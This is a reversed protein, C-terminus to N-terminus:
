SDSRAVPSPFPSFRASDTSSISVPISFFPPFSFSPDIRSPREGADGPKLDGHDELLRYAVCLERHMAAYELPMLDTPIKILDKERVVAISAWAGFESGPKHPVVWDGENLQKIGAGTKLVTAIMTSGAVFPPRRMVETTAPDMSSAFLPHIDGPGISAAKVNILVQGWELTPPLPTSKVEFAEAPKTMSPQKYMVNFARIKPLQVEDYSGKVVGNREIVEDVGYTQLSEGRARM